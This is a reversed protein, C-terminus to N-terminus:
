LQKIAEQAHVRSDDMKEAVTVTFIILMNCCLFRLTLNIVNNITM